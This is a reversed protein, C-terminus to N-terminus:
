NFYVMNKLQLHAKTVQMKKRRLAPIAEEREEGWGEKEEKWGERGKRGVEEKSEGEGRYTSSIVYSKKNKKSMYM